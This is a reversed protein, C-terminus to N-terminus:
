PRSVAKNMKSITLYLKKPHFIDIFNLKGEEKYKTEEIFFVSPKLEALIKKFTYMKPRLGAANFGLFRLKRCFSKVKKRRGRRTKKTSVKLSKRLNKVGVKTEEIYEPTPTKFEM